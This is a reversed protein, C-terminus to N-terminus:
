RLQVPAAGFTRGVATADHLCRVPVVKASVMEVNNSLQPPKHVAQVPGGHVM